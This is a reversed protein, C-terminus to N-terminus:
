PCVQKVVYTSQNAYPQNKLLTQASVSQTSSWGMLGAMPFLRPYTATITYYVVDNAGGQGALGPDVDWQNNGNVDTFCETAKDYQGNNNNDQFPEPAVQGFNGYSKRSTVFTANAAVQRVSAMVKSDIAATNGAADQITADRGAKQLAGSLMAQVYSQYALDCMGMMLLLMVPAVIAFEVATAGRADARLRLIARIM